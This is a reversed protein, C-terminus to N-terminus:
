PWRRLPPARSRRRSRPAPGARCPPRVRGVVVVRRQPVLQGARPRLEGKGQLASSVERGIRQPDAVLGTVMPRQHQVRGGAGHRRRQPQGAPVVHLVRKGGVAQASAAPAGSAAILRPRSAKSGTLPRECIFRAVSCPTRMSSSRRCSCRWGPNPARRWRRAPRSARAAGAAAPRCPRPRRGRGPTGRRPPRAIGAFAADLVQPAGARQADCAARANPGTCAVEGPVARRQRRAEAAPRADTSTLPERKM